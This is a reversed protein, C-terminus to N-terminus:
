GVGDELYGDQLEDLEDIWAYFELEDIMELEDEGLLIELDDAGAAGAVPEVEFGPRPSSVLLAVVVAAAVAGAPLWRWDLSRGKPLEDLARHKAQNLRSLTEGDLENLSERYAQRAKTEFDVVNPNQKNM